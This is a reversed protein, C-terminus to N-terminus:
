RYPNGGGDGGPQPPYQQHGGYPPQPPQPAGYPQQPPYQPFQQQPAGGGGYPPQGGGGGKNRRVLVIVGGVVVVALLGVGAWVYVPVGGDSKAEAAQNGGATAGSAPASPQPAASSASSPQRQSEARSLLPNEKPGSDVAPNAALAKQPSAIGYGYSDNPVQQGAPVVASKILRNIVQGASLEPYKSRVLAAIASVYATSDSTGNGTRYDTASQHGASYIDVGPAVLTTEPGRNSKEWVKGDRDVAGVAVVGPVAAPYDVPTGRNGTNGSAGIVVVDKDIAYQIAERVKKDAGGGLSMNIVKAGKDVAYRIAEPIRDEGGSGVEGLPSMNVRVPLIKAHPALGIIGDKAGHGRGAILSAMSTGHGIKDVRGDSQEGSFDAGPLVQGVLDQHTASVGSDIVAVVVNDGQSIPWVKTEAEYKDIVWQGTRINDAAAPGYTTGWLLSGLVLVAAGRVQRSSM